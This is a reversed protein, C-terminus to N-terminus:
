VSQQDGADPRQLRVPRLTLSRHAPSRTGASRPTASTSGPSTASPACPTERITGCGDTEEGEEPGASAAQMRQVEAALAVVRAHLEDIDKNYAEQKEVLARKMPKWRAAHHLAAAAFEQQLKHQLDRFQPHAELLATEVKAPLFRQLTQMTLLGSSAANRCLADVEDADGPAGASGGIGSHERVGTGAPEVTSLLKTTGGVAEARFVERLRYNIIYTRCREYHAEAADVLDLMHHLVLVRRLKAFDCHHENDVEATGWPYVRGRPLDGGASLLYPPQAGIVAYPVTALIKTLVEGAPVHECLAIQQDRVTARVLKKFLQLELPRLSDCMAVVPILNVRKSLEKMALTDLPLLSAVSPGLFYLCCHVRNDVMSERRPQEEQFMYQRTCQDIYHAAGTWAHTNDIASGFGPTDIVTFRVSYNNETLVTHVVQVAATSGPGFAPADRPPFVADGLLTNLFTTKGLGSRGAVMLNFTSGHRAKLHRVQAPLAHLGVSEPALHQPAQAVQDELDRTAPRIRTSSDSLDM